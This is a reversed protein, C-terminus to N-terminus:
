FYIMLLFQIYVSRKIHNTIEGGDFEIKVKSTQGAM